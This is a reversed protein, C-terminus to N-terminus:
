SVIKIILITKNITNISKIILIKIFRINDITILTKIKINIKIFTQNITFFNIQFHVDNFIRNIKTEILIINITKHLNRNNTKYEFRKQKIIEDIM